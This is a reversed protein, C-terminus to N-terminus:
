QTWNGLLKDVPTFMWEDKQLDAAIENLKKLRQEHAELDNSSVITYDFSPRFMHCTKEKPKSTGAEGNGQSTSPQPTPQDPSLMFSKGIWSSVSVQYIPLESDLLHEVDISHVGLLM